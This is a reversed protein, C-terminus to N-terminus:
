SRKPERRMTQLGDGHRLCKPKSKTVAVRLWRPVSFSIKSDFPSKQTRASGARLCKPKSNTVAVRLRPPIHECSSSGGQPPLPSWSTTSPTALMKSLLSRVLSCDKTASVGETMKKRFHWRGRPPLSPSSRVFCCAKKVM